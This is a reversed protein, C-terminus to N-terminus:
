IKLDDKTNRSDDSENHTESDAKEVIAKNLSESTKSDSHHEDLGLRTYITENFYSIAVGVYFALPGLALINVMSARYIGTMLKQQIVVLVGFTLAPIVLVLVVFVM